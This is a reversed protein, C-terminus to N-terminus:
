KIRDNESAIANFIACINIKINMIIWSGKSTPTVPQKCSLSPIHISMQMDLLNTDQLFPGSM